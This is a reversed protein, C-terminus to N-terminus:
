KQNGSVRAMAAELEARYAPQHGSTIYSKAADHMASNETRLRRNEAALQDREELIAALKPSRHATSHPM